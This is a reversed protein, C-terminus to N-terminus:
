EKAGHERLLEALEENGIQIANKLPTLGHKDKVNVDAGNNILVRAVEVHADLDNIVTSAIGLATKGNINRANVDAGNDILISVVEVTGAAAALALATEGDINQANINVELSLLYEVIDVNKNIAAWHLPREKRHKKIPVDALEPHKSLVKKVEELKGSGIAWDLDSSPDDAGAPVALAVIWLMLVLFVIGKRM